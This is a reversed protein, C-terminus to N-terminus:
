SSLQKIPSEHYWFISIKTANAGHLYLKQITFLSNDHYRAMKTDPYWFHDIKPAGPLCPSALSNSLISRARSSIMIDQGDQCWSPQKAAPKAGGGVGDQCWSQQKAAKHTNKPVLIDINQHSQCCSFMAKTYYIIPKRSM